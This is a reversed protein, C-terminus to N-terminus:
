SKNEGLDFYKNHNYQPLNELFFNGKQSNSLESGTKLGISVIWFLNVIIEVSGTQKENGQMEFGAWKQTNAEWM